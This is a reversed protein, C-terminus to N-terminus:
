PFVGEITVQALDVVPYKGAIKPDMYISYAADTYVQVWSKLLTIKNAKSTRKELEMKIESWSPVLIADTKYKFPIKQYDQKAAYFNINEVVSEYQYAVEFRSDMSVRVYPYLKWSVFAGAEYPVMLNGVFNNEKLYDVAGAPYIPIPLGEKRDKPSTPIRLQWFHNKLSSSLGLIGVTLFFVLVVKRNNDFTRKILDNLPTGNLYASVYCLWTLAFLSLHRYHFLAAYATAFVIPLGPLKKFGKHILSYLIIIVAILYVFTHGTSVEWIPFWEPILSTRDLTIARWLYPFYEHGYPNLMLLICITSFIFLNRKINMFIKAYNEKTYIDSIFREAIYIAFLGLGVVFGAHMNIWIVFLPLLGYLAFNNGTRDQEILFFFVVLFFLTFLQARITSFGFSGLRSAVLALLLFTYDNSGQRIAFKYCGFVISIVLLYKLFLLGFSGLGLKVVLMYVLAGTGWEHHIVPTITPIYSFLDYRPLKGLNIAERFLAMEHFLDLDVFSFKSILGWFCFFVGFILVLRFRAKSMATRDHMQNIRKLRQFHNIPIQREFDKRLFSVLIAYM